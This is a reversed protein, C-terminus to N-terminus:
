LIKPLDREAMAATARSRKRKNLPPHTQEAVWDSGAKARAMFAGEGVPRLM